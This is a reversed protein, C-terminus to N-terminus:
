VKQLVLTQCDNDKFDRFLIGEEAIDKGTRVTDGIKYSADPDVTPFVTLREQCFLKTFVQLEIKKEDAGTYQLVVLNPMDTLVRLSSTAYFARDKKYATLFEKLEAKYSEPFNAINGSFGIPGGKMFGFTYAPRVNLVFDWTGNNCSIPVTQLETKGYEPFGDCFTQVIWKEIFSPHLRKSTEKYITLGDYPGQNDSIWFSDFMKAQGLEMRHGGSACNTLYLDPYKEKIGRVFIEQGQMYRYFATHAPDYPLTSNFDFKMYGLGYTDILASVTETMFARAAPDAYNLFYNERNKFYYEPHAAVSEATGLAREPELWLGFIMGHARVYDSVERLRGAFASKTNEVWDGICQDWTRGNGFWGADIVFYEIGIEAATDVQRYINDIDIHDFELLWTNYMIPLKRPTYLERCVEHLIPADLDAANRTRYCIIEPLAVTEGPAVTLSLSSDELGIEVVAATLKQGLVSRRCLMKWQCNPIAHFVTILGNQKNRCALVPAAGDCTRIGLSSAVIQTNLPQWAGQSENQWLNFQTYIDYDSGEFAFRASFCHITVPHDSINKLTDKRLVAGNAFHRFSCEARVAENEYAYGTPTKETKEFTSTGDIFGFDGEIHFWGSIDPIGYESLCLNEIKM